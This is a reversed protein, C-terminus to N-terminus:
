LKLGVVELRRIIDPDCLEILTYGLETLRYYQINLVGLEEKTKLDFKFKRTFTGYEERMLGLSMCIHINDYEPDSEDPRV